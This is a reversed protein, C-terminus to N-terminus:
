QVHAYCFVYSFCITLRNMFFHLVSIRTDNSVWLTVSLTGSPFLRSHSNGLLVIGWHCRNSVHCVWVRVYLCLLFLGGGRMGNGGSGGGGYCDRDSYDDPSWYFNLICWWHIKVKSYEFGADQYTLQEVPCSFIHTISRELSCLLTMLRQCEVRIIIWVCLSM